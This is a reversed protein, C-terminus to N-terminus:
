SGGLRAGRLRLKAKLFDVTVKASGYHEAITKYLETDKPDETREVKKRERVWVERSNRIDGFGCCKDDM